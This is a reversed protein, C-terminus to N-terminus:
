ILRVVLVQMSLEELTFRESLLNGGNMAHRIQFVAFLAAFVLAMAKLGETWLDRRSKGLEWAAAACVVAPVAFYIWLANLIIRDGVAGTEPVRLFLVIAATLLAFGASIMGITKVPVFRAALAVLAIGAILGITETMGTFAIAVALMYALGAGVAYISAM